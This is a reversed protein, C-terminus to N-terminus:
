YPAWAVLAVKQGRLSRLSFERGELDPLVLDPAEASMLARGGTTEPGIAWVGLEPDNVVAMGLKRCTDALDFAGAGLPVCVEGKCAGQPKISWGTAAEFQEADTSFETLLM